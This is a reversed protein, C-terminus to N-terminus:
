AWEAPDIAQRGGFGDSLEHWWSIDPEGRKWCLYVQRGDRLAVWDLLGQEPDKVKAGLGRIREIIRDLEEQLAVVDVASGLSSSVGHGNGGSYLELSHALGRSGQLRRNARFLEDALAAVDPLAARAEALTFIRDDM